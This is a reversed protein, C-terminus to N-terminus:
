HAADGLVPVGIERLFRFVPEYCAPARTSDQDDGPPVVIV